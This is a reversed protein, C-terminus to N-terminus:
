FYETLIRGAVTIAFILISAILIHSSFKLITRYKNIIDEKEVRVFQVVAYFVYILSYSLITINVMKITPSIISLLVLISFLFLM